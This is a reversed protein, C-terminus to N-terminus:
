DGRGPRRSSEEEPSSASTSEESSPTVPGESEASSDSSESSDAPASGTGYPNEPTYGENAYPWTLGKAAMLTTMRNNFETIESNPAAPINWSLPTGDLYYPSITLYGTTIDSNISFELKTDPAVRYTCSQPKYTDQYNVLTRNQVGGDTTIKWLRSTASPTSADSGSLAFKPQTTFGVPLSPDDVTSIPAVAMSLIESEYEVSHDAPHDEHGIIIVHITCTSKDVWSEITIYDSSSNRFVFDQGGAAYVMADRSPTVYTVLMSHNRRYVIELEAYLAANYLTTTTQCIGGGVEDVHTGNAITGAPRYGGDLTVSGYMSLASIDAGPAFTHGNMNTTSQVLNNERNSLIETTPSLYQTSYRGIITFTAARETTLEPETVSEGADIYYTDSTDIDGNLVDVVLQAIGERFDYSLGNQGPTVIVDGGGPATVSANVPEMKWAEQLHAFYSMAKSEDITIPVTVTVPSYQVDKAFKYREILTGETVLSTLESDLKSDDWSIGVDKATGGYRHEEYTKSQIIYEKKKVNNMPKRCLEAAKEPTMGSLSQGDFFVNSVITGEELNLPDSAQRSQATTNPAAIALMARSDSALTGAMFTLALVSAIFISTRLVKKIM